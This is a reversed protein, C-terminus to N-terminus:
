PEEWPAPVHILETTGTEEFLVYRTVLRVGFPTEEFRTHITNVSKKPLFARYLTNFIPNRDAESAIEREERGAAVKELGFKAAFTVCTISIVPM